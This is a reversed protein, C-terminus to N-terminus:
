WLTKFALAGVVFKFTPALALLLLPIDAGKGKRQLKLVIQKALLPPPPMVVGAGPPMLRVPEAYRKVKLLFGQERHDKFLFHNKIWYFQLPVATFNYEFLKLRGKRLISVVLHFKSHFKTELWSIESKILNKSNRTTPKLTYSSHLGISFHFNLLRGVALSTVVPPQPPTVGGQLIIESYFRSTKQWTSTSRRCFNGNLM